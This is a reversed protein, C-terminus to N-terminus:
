KSLSRQRACVAAKATDWQFMDDEIIELRAHLSRQENHKSHQIEVHEKYRKQALVVERAIAKRKATLATGDPGAVHHSVGFFRLSNGTLELRDDFQRLLAEARQSEARLDEVSQAGKKDRTSAVLASTGSSSTAQHVVNSSASAPQAAAITAAATGSTVPKGKRKTLALMEAKKRAAEAQQAKQKAIQDQRIQEMSRNEPEFVANAGADNLAVELDAGKKQWTFFKELSPAQAFHRRQERPISFMDAIDDLRENLLMRQYTHCLREFTRVQMPSDGAHQLLVGQLIRKVLAYYPAELILVAKEPNPGTISYGCMLASSIFSCISVLPFSPLKLLARMQYKDMGLSLQLVSSVFQKRQEVSETAWTTVAHSGDQVEKWSPIKDQPGFLFGFREFALSRKSLMLASGSDEPSRLLCIGLAVLLHQVHAILPAGLNKWDRLADSLSEVFKNRFHDQVHQVDLYSVAQLLKSLRVLYASSCAHCTICFLCVTDGDHAQGNAKARVWCDTSEKDKQLQEATLERDRAQYAAVISRLTVIMEQPVLAETGPEIRVDVLPSVNWLAFDRHSNFEYESSQEGVLSEITAQILQVSAAYENMLNKLVACSERLKSVPNYPNYRSITPKGPLQADLPLQNGEIAHSRVIQMLDKMVSQDFPVHFKTESDDSSAVALWGIMRIEHAKVELPPVASEGNQKPILWLSAQVVLEKEDLSAISASPDMM